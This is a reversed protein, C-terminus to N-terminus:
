KQPGAPLVADLLEKLEARTAAHKEATALNYYEGPDEPHRDGQSQKGIVDGAVV